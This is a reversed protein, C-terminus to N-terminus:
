GPDAGHIVERCFVTVAERLEAGSKLDDTLSSWARQTIEEDGPILAESLVAAGEEWFCFTMLAFMLLSLLLLWPFAQPRTSHIEYKGVRNDYEIRYGM